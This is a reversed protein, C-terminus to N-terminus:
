MRDGLQVSIQNPQMQHLHQAMHQGKCEEHDNGGCCEHRRDQQVHKVQPVGAPHPLM